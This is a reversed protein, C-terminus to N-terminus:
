REDVNSESPSGAIVLAVHHGAALLRPTETSRGPIVSRTSDDDGDALWTADRGGSTATRLGPELGRPPLLGRLQFLIAAVLFDGRWGGRRLVGGRVAIAATFFPGAQKLMKSDPRHRSPHRPRAAGSSLALIPVHNVAALDGSLAPHHSGSADDARLTCDSQEPAVHEVDKADSGRFCGLQIAEVLVLFLPPPSLASRGIGM